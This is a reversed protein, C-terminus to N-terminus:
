ARAGPLTIWSGFLRDYSEPEFRKMGSAPFFTIEGFYLKGGVIYFDTRVFPIGESLARSLRLMEDLQEPKPIPERSFPTHPRHVDMHEWSDTFFDETMGSSSFRDRCVLIARPVGNFCHVKFDQLEGTEDEMYKEALVRPKVAKYPWERNHLYYDNQLCKTIKRGAAERDLQSKDRCIVLGGSDHTCKLVFQDPLSDFDIDSFRDWVGYTPIIYEPGLREAVYKKALDKDVMQTYLPNRDYLKMWQLKENFTEPHEWNIKRGTLTRFKFSLFAKDSVMPLYGHECLAIFLMRPNKLYDSKNM